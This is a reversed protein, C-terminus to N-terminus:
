QRNPNDPLGGIRAILAQFGPTQRLPDARPDVRLWLIRSSRQDVAESLGRLAEQYRGLAAQVYAVDQPAVKGPRETLQRLTDEAERTRGANALVRGMEALYAADNALAAAQNLDTLADTFQELAARARGRIFYGGPRGPAIEVSETAKAVATEYRRLYFLMMAVTNKM